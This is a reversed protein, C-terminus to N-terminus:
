QRPNYLQEQWSDENDFLLVDIENIAMCKTAGEDVTAKLNRNLVRLLGLGGTGPRWWM